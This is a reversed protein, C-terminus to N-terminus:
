LAWLSTEPIPGGRGGEGEEESGRLSLGSDGAEQSEHSSDAEEKGELLGGFSAKQNGSTRGDEEGRGWGWVWEAPSGNQGLCHSFPSNSCSHTHTHTAPPDIHFTGGGSLLWRCVWHSTLTIFPLLSFCCVTPNLPKQEGCAGLESWSAKPRLGSPSEQATIQSPPHTERM